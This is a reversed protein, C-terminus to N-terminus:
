NYFLLSWFFGPVNGARVWQLFATRRGRRRASGAPWGIVVVTLILMVVLVRERAAAMARAAVRSLAGANASSSVPVRFFILSVPVMTRPWRSAEM